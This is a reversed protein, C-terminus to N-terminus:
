VSVIVHSIQLYAFSTIFPSESCYLNLSNLFELYSLYIVLRDLIKNVYVCVYLISICYM